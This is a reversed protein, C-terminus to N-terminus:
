LLSDAAPELLPPALVRFKSIQAEALQLILPSIPKVYSFRAVGGPMMLQYTEVWLGALHVQGYKLRPLSVRRGPPAQPQLNRGPAAVGQPM